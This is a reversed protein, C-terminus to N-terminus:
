QKSQWRRRRKEQNDEILFPLDAVTIYHIVFLLDARYRAVYNKRFLSLRDAKKIRGMPKAGISSLVVCRFFGAAVGRAQVIDGLFHIYVVSDTMYVVGLTLTVM